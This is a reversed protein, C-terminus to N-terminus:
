EKDSRKDNPKKEKGIPNTEPNLEFRKKEANYIRNPYVQTTKPFVVRVNGRPDLVMNPPEDLSVTEPYERVISTKTAIDYAIKPDVGKSTEQLYQALTDASTIGTEKQWNRLSKIGADIGVQQPNLGVLSALKPDLPEGKKVEVPLSAARKAAANVLIALKDQSINARDKLTSLLFDTIKAQDPSTFVKEVLINFSEDEDKEPFYDGKSDAVKQMATALEADKPAMATALSGLDNYNIKGSALQDLFNFRSGVKVQLDMQRRRNDIRAASIELRTDVDEYSESPIKSRVEESNILAKAQELTGGTELITNGANFAAKEIDGNIDLEKQAESTVLVSQEDNRNKKIRDIVESLTSPNAKVSDVLNKGLSDFNDKNAKRTETIEHQIANEKGSMFHTAIRNSLESRYLDHPQKSVIDDRLLAASNVFEISSNYTQYGVRRGIGRPVNIDKGNADKITIEGEGYMIDMIGMMYENELEANKVKAMQNSHEALVKGIDGFDIAMQQGARASAEGFAGPITRPMPIEKIAPIETRVTEQATPITPM